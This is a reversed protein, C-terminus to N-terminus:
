AVFWNRWLYKAPDLRIEALSCPFKLLFFRRNWYYVHHNLWCVNPLYFAQRAPSPSPSLSLSLSLSFSLSLSLSHSTLVTYVCACIYIHIYIYISYMIFVCWYLVLLLLSLSNVLSSACPNTFPVHITYCHLFLHSPLSCPPTILKDGVTMMLTKMTMMVMLLLMMLMMMMMLLLLLLMIVGAM